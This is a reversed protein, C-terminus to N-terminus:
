GCQIGVEEEQCPFAKSVCRPGFCRSRPHGPRPSSLGSAERRQARRASGTSDVNIVKCAGAGIISGGCGDSVLSVNCRAARHQQQGAM